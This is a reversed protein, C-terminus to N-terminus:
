LGLPAELTTRGVPEYMYSYQIHIPWARVLITVYSTLSFETLMSHEPTFPIFPENPCLVESNQLAQSPLEVGFTRLLHVFPTIFFLLYSQLHQYTFHIYYTPRIVKLQM